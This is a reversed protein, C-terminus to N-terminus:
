GQLRHPGAGALDPHFTWEQKWKLGDFRHAARENGYVFRAGALQRRLPGCRRPDVWPEQWRGRAERMRLQGIPRILYSSAGEPRRSQRERIGFFIPPQRM